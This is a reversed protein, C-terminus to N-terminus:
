CWSAGAVSDAHVAYLNLVRDMEPLRVPRLIEGAIAHVRAEEARREDASAEFLHEYRYFRMVHVLEHVLVYTLLPLLLGDEGERRVLGLLNHDQLCIRYFDKGRIQKAGAPRRLRLVQALAERSVEQPLLEALTRVEYPYRRWSEDSLRFHESVREEAVEMSRALLNIEEAQFRRNRGM